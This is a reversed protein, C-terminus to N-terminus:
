AFVCAEGQDMMGKSVAHNVRGGQLVTLFTVMGHLSAFMSKHRAFGLSALSCVFAVFFLLFIMRKGFTVCALKSADAIAPLALPQSALLGEFSMGAIETRATWM